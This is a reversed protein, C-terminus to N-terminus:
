ELRPTLHKSKSSHVKSQNPELFARQTYRTLTQMKRSASPIRHHQPSQHKTASWTSRLLMAVPLRLVAFATLCADVIGILLVAEAGRGDGGGDNDEM